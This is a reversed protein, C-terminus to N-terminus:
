RGRTRIEFSCSFSTEPDLLCLGIGNNFADPAGTMPEIAVSTGDAYRGNYLLVYDMNNRKIVVDRKGDRLTLTGGGRFCDDFENEGMNEVSNFNATVTRGDPFYGDSMILRELRGEHLLRWKDHILFYPHCGIVLPARRDGSNKVDYALAFWSPGIRMTIAVDLRSPYGANVASTRFVASSGDGAVDTRFPLNRTFGHISNDGDNAPLTYTRGDLSYSANRVRGAFPILSCAGGHTPKGDGSKKLIEDANLVLRSIWAGNPDVVAYSQGSAIRVEGSGGPYM